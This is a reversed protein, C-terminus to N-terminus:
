RVDLELVALEAPEPSGPQVVGLVGAMILCAWIAFVFPRTRSLSSAMMANVADTSGEAALKGMGDMFERFQLRMLLGFFIIAAFLILKGGIWPTDTLRGTTWSWTVSALMGVILACRFWFDVRNAIEGLPTGRNLYIVLVLTLWVPGLLIIGIMQWLPHEFGVFETLIGAVTLMLSICIRPVLDIASMAQGAALRQEVSLEPNVASRSWWYVGIDPGLWYVFLLQHLFATLEYASVAGDSSYDTLTVAFSQAFLLTAALLFLALGWRIM